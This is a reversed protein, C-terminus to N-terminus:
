IKISGGWGRRAAIKRPSQLWIDVCALKRSSLLVREDRSFGSPSLERTHPSARQLLTKKTVERRFSREAIAPEGISSNESEAVFRGHCGRSFERWSLFSIRNFLEAFSGSFRDSRNPITPQKPSYCQTQHRFPM